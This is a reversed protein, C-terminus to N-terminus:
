PGTFFTNAEGVNGEALDSFGQVLADVAAAQGVALLIYSGSIVVVSKDPMVCIWKKSDFGDAIKKAVTAAQTIDQVKVIAVEHASTTLLATAAAAQSVLAEYDETSLGLMQQSESAEVPRLESMPMKETLKSGAKDLVSLLVAPTEGTLTDTEPATPAGISSCGGTVALAAIALVALIRKM